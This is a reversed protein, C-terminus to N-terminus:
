SGESLDLDPFEPAFGEHMLIIERAASIGEITPGGPDDMSEVCCGFLKPYKEEVEELAVFMTVQSAGGPKTCDKWAPAIDEHFHVLTIWAMKGQNAPARKAPEIITHVLMVLLRQKATEQM